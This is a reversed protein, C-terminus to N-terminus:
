YEHKDMAVQLAPFLDILKVTCDRCLVAVVDRGDFFKGYGGSLTLDISKDPDSDMEKGCGDCESAVRVPMAKTVNVIKTIYPM